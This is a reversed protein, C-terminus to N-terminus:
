SHKISFKELINIKLYSLSKIPLFIIKSIHNRAKRVTVFNLCSIPAVSLKQHKTYITKKLYPNEYIDM